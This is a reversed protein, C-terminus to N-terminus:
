NLMIYNMLADYSWLNAPIGCGRGGWHHYFRPKPRWSVEGFMWWPIHIFNCSQRWGSTSRSSQLDQVLQIFMLIWMRTERMWRGMWSCSIDLSTPCLTSSWRVMAMGAPASEAAMLVWRQHSLPWQSLGPCLLNRGQPQCSQWVHPYSNCEFIATQVTLVHCWLGTSCGWVNEIGAKM